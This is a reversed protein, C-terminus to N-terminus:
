DAFGLMPNIDRSELFDDVAAPDARSEDLPLTFLAHPGAIGQAFAFKNVIYSGSWLLTTVVALVLARRRM